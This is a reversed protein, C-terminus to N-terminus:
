RRRPRAPSVQPGYREVCFASLRSALGAIVAAGHHEPEWAAYLSIHVPGGPGDIALPRLGFRTDDSLVAVGRGAAALAQAVEPSGVEVVSGYATGARSMAEDLARRPHFDPSLLLLDRGALEALGVSTRDAWTDTTSAYAWVPLDAVALTALGSPPATTGIVLDAGRLLAAYVSVPLEEWVTPMPDDPGLAALFPAIVDTLTTGPAAITLREMRGAAISRAAIEAGEARAVLDRAIPLFQRGAASLRLARESRSFLTIGLSRELQRLQRSLSPQTVHVVVAAASVSGSDAVAIFYRLTRLEM